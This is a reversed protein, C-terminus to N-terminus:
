NRATGQGRLPALVSWVADAIDEKSSRPVHVEGAATLITVENDASGFALDGSVDNVILADCGKRALKARGHALVDAETDGTEAAFGAIV